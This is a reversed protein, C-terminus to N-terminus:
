QERFVIFRGTCAVSAGSVQLTYSGAPLHGVDLSLTGDKVPEMRDQVIRGTQDMCRSRVLVGDFGPLEVQVRDSAPVPFVRLSRESPLAVGTTVEQIDWLTLDDVAAEVISGGNYAAGTRISDSAMFRIRFQGTVPVVDRVRFAVRRWARASVRTQEVPVWTAGNDASVEVKWHDERPNTGGPPNNVYWRQYTVMPEAYTTLDVPPGLLTTVGGDVDAEGMPATNSSANGTLFCATGSPTTQAGPQVMVGTGNSGSYSPVPAAQVWAGGTANDTPLGTSWAGWEHRQDADEVQVPAFGVTIFHPLAPEANVAGAPASSGRAGFVDHVVVAYAVVTGAPQPPIVGTYWGWSTGNMPATSWDADDNLRYLVEVGQLYTGFPFPVQVLAEVAIPVGPVASLVPLHDISTTALLTIGHRAFAQLIANGNPTGNLLNADDDDALLADLLVERFAAGEDGNFTQGQLGALTQKFLTMMQGMDGLLEATSWWAGAIIQGDAHVQGVLDNPYVRHGQDYRRLFSAPEASRFGRGVFPDGTLSMAWLDAYGESIAGNALSAGLGQYYTDNVAHAYEHYVVDPLEAFSRCGNGAALFAISTGDYFANCTGGAVDIRAPLVLDMATYEPMVSKLHAHIRNVAHYTTRERLTSVGDFSLANAGEQLTVNLSPTTGNTSVNVWRGRLQAQATVPGPLGTALQGEQDTFLFSGNVSVRLDPLGRVENPAGPGFPRVTATVSADAGADQEEGTHPAHDVVRDARYLLAGTGADVLCDWRNPRGQGLEDVLVKHVLRIDHVEELPVPLLALGQYTAQAHPGTGELAREMAQGQQFVEEPLDLVPVIPGASWAVVRGQGDLKVTLRARLVSLGHYQQQFHVHTIRGGPVTAVHMFADAPLQWLEVLRRLFSSARAQPDAGETVVPPGFARSPFGTREDFEAVWGPHEELFRSWAGGQRAQLQGEATPRLAADRLFTIPGTAQARVMGSCVIAAILLVLQLRPRM